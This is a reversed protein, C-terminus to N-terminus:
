APLLAQRRYINASISSTLWLDLILLFYYTPIQFLKRKLREVIPVLDHSTTDIHVWHLETCICRKTFSRCESLCSGLNETLMDMRAGFRWEM